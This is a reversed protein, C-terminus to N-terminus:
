GQKMNVMTQLLEDSTTVIKSNAEFGRQAIILNAMEQSLDVNSAELAGSQITGTGSTGPAVAAALPGAAAQNTYLNGSQSVLAQPDQVSQLTVQGATFTTGDSLTINVDGNTAIAYSSVTAGPAATSPAQSANIQIAGVTSLGTNNFGMVQQGGATILYGNPDVSFAGDQTLYQTKTSPDQVVFFGNGSIALDSTVGTSTVSGETWNNTIAENYVGTGLQESNATAAALTDSFSDASQVIGAKFGTTNINAINNGIVDMQQQFSDLGSVASSLSTLM